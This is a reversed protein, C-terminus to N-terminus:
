SWPKKGVATFCLLCAFFRGAAQRDKLDAFWDSVARESVLGRQVAAAATADLRLLANTDALNNSVLPTPILKLEQVGNARFLGFLSRGIWASRIGEALTTVISRTTARDAADIILTEHDPEFVVIRGGPRTVRVMEALARAPEALHELVREAWCADFCDDAFELAHVDGLAYELAAGFQGSRARAEAVMAASADIAVVKGQPGVLSALERADDGLGCGVELVRDGARLQLFPYRARSLDRLRTSSQELFTFYEPAKGTADVHSFGSPDFAGESSKSM